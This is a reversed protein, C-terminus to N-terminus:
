KESLFAEMLTHGMPRFIGTKQAEAECYTRAGHEQESDSRYIVYPVPEASHTM